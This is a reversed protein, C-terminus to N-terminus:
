RISKGIRSDKVENAMTYGLGYKIRINYLVTRLVNNVDCM